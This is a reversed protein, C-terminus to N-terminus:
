SLRPSLIFVVHKLKEMEQSLLLFTFYINKRTSPEAKQIKFVAIITKIYNVKLSFTNIQM